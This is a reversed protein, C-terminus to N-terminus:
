DRRCHFALLTSITDYSFTLPFTIAPISRRPFDDDRRICFGLRTRVCAHAIFRAALSYSVIPQEFNRSKRPPSAAAAPIKRNERGLNVPRKALRPRLNIARSPLCM